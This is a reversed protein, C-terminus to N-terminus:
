LPDKEESSIQEEMSKPFKLGENKVLRRFKLQTQVPSICSIWEFLPQKAPLLRPLFSSSDVKYNLIGYFDVPVAM